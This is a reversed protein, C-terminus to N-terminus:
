VSLSPPRYPPYLFGRAVDHSASSQVLADPLYLAAGLLGADGIASSSCHGISTCTTHSASKDHDSKQGAPSKDVSGNGAVNVPPTDASSASAESAHPAHDHVSDVVVANATIAFILLVVIAMFRTM